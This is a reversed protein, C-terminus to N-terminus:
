HIGKVTGKYGTVQVEVNKFIFFDQVDTVYRPAIIIDAGSKSIADYAAQSAAEHAGVSFLSILSSFFDGPQVAYPNYVGLQSVVAGDYLVGDAYKNSSGFPITLFYTIKAHGSIKERVAVDAKLENATLRVQMPASLTNSHQAICGSALAAVSFLLPAILRLKKM